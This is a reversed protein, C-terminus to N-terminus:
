KVMVWINCVRHIELQLWAGLEKM